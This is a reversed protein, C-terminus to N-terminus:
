FFINKKVEIMIKVFNILFPLIKKSKEQQNSGHAINNRLESALILNDIIITRKDDEVFDKETEILYQYIYLMM